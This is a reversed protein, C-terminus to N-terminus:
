AMARAGCWQGSVPTPAQGIWRGAKPPNDHEITRACNEASREPRTLVGSDCGELGRGTATASMPAPPATTAASM